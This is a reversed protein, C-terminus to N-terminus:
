QRGKPVLKGNADRVLELTDGDPEDGYFENYAKGSSFKLGSIVVQRAQRKRDIIEPKDGPQAFYTRADNEYEATPIAAGSEKRLRAETFARQAQRYAQQDGSQLLNPAHQLGIQTFLGGKSVRDELSTGTKDKSEMAATADKARNYFSLTQRESGTVARAAQAAPKGVADGERVWIPQGNPGAIQVLRDERPASPTKPERYQPIGEAFAPDDESVLKQVPNGRPGITTVIHRKPEKPRNADAEREMLRIGEVNSRERRAAARDDSAQTMDERRLGIEDEHEKARQALQQQQLQQAIQQAAQQQKLQEELRRQALLEMLASQAGGAIRGSIGM